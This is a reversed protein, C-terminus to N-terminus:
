DILRGLDECLGAWNVPQPKPRRTSKEIRDRLARELGAGSPFSAPYKSHAGAQRRPLDQLPSYYAGPRSSRAQSPVGSMLKLVLWAVNKRPFGTKSNDRLGRWLGSFVDFAAPAESMGRHAASALVMWDGVTLLREASKVFTVAGERVPRHQQVTWGDAGQWRAAPAARPLLRELTAASFDPVEVQRHDFTKNNAPNTCPVVLMWGQHEPNERVVLSSAVDEDKRPLLWSLDTGAAALTPRISKQPKFGASPRYFASPDRWKFPVTKEGSKNAKTHENKAYVIPGIVHVGSRGCRWCLGAPQPNGLHVCRPNWTLANLLPITSEWDAPKFCGTWHAEGVIGSLPVFNLGLTEALKNGMALAMVPPAGHISPTLGSGGSQTWPVVRLMGTTACPLCLRTRADDGHQFLAKNTGSAMEAFLSGASKDHRTAALSPDQLFPVSDDFLRFRHEEAQLANLVATPVSGALLTERLVSVGGAAPAKWYLLTLLFRHAAFNDLPSASAIRGIRQASGLVELPSRTESRGADTLVELWKSSIANWAKERIPDSSDDM